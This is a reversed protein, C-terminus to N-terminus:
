DAAPEEGTDLRYCKWAKDSPDQKIYIRGCSPCEFAPHAWSWKEYNLLNFIVEVDDVDTEEEPGYWNKLWTAKRGSRLAKLYSAIAKQAKDEVVEEEDQWLLLGEYGAESVERENPLAGCRCPFPKETMPGPHEILEENEREILEM